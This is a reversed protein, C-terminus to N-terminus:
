GLAVADTSIEEVVTVVASGAVLLTIRSLNTDISNAIEGAAAAKHLAISYAPVEGVISMVTTLAPVSALATLDAGSSLAVGAAKGTLGITPAPAGVQHRIRVM